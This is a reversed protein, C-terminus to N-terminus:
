DRYFWGIFGAPVAPAAQLVADLYEATRAAEQPDLLFKPNQLLSDGNWQWFWEGGYQTDTVAVAAEFTDPLVAGLRYDGFRYRGLTVITAGRKRGFWIADMTPFPEDDSPRFAYPRASPTFKERQILGM